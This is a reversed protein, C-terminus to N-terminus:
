SSWLKVTTAVGRLIGFGHEMSTLAEPLCEGNGGEDAVCAPISGENSLCLKLPGINNLNVNKRLSLM